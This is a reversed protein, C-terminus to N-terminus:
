GVETNLTQLTGETMEMEQDLQGIVQQQRSLEAEMEQGAYKM